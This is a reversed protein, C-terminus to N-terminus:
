KKVPESDKINGSCGTKEAKEFDEPVAYYLMVM